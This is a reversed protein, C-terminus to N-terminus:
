FASTLSCLAHDTVSLREQAPDLIQSNASQHILSNM